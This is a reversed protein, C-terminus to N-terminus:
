GRDFLERSLGPRWASVTPVRHTNKVLRRLVQGQLGALPKAGSCLIMGHGNCGRRHNCEEVIDPVLGLKSRAEEFKVRAAVSSPAVGHTVNQTEVM